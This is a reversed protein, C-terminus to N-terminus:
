SSLQPALPSPGPVGVGVVSWVSRNTLRDSRFCASPFVVVKATGREVVGWGLWVLWSSKM